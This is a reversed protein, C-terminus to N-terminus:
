LRLGVGSRQEVLFFGCRQYTVDSVPAITIKWQINIHISKTRSVHAWTSWAHYLYTPVLVPLTCAGYLTEALNLIEFYDCM